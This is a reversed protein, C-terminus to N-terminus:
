CGLPPGPTYPMEVSTMGTETTDVGVIWSAGATEETGRGMEVGPLRPITRNVQRRDREKAAAFAAQLHQLIIGGGVDDADRVDYRARRSISKCSLHLRTTGNGGNGEELRSALHAAWPSM